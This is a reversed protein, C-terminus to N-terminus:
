INALNKKTKWLNNQKINTTVGYRKSFIYFKQKIIRLSDKVSNLITQLSKNTKINSFLDDEPKWEVFSIILSSSNIIDELKNEKICTNIYINLVLALSKLSPSKINIKIDYENIIFGGKPTILICKISYIKKPHMIRKLISLSRLLSKSEPTEIFKSWDEDNDINFYFDKIYGFDYFSDKNKNILPITISFPLMSSTVFSIQLYINLTNLIIFIILLTLIIDIKNVNKYIHFQTIIHKRINKM